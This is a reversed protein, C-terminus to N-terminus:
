ECGPVSSSRWIIICWVCKSCADISYVKEEELWAAENHNRHSRKKLTCNNKVKSHVVRKLGQVVEEKEKSHCSLALSGSCLRRRLVGHISSAESQSIM